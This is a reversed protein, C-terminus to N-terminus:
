QEVVLGMASLDLRITASERLSQERCMSRRKGNRGARLVTTMTSHNRSYALPSCQHSDRSDPDAGRQLLIEAMSIDNAEAALSLCTCLEQDTADLKVDPHGLLIRVVSMDRSLSHTLLQVLERVSFVADALASYSKLGDRRRPKMVSLMLPTRQSNDAQDPKIDPHGLLM